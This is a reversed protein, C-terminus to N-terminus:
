QAGGQSLAPPLPMWHTPNGYWFCWGETDDLLWETVQQHGDAFLCLYNAKHEDPRQDEISIWPHKAAPQPNLYLPLDYGTPVAGEEMARKTLDTAVAGTRCHMWAVPELPQARAQDILDGLIHMELTFEDYGRETFFKAALRLGPLHAATIVPTTAKPDVEQPKAQM